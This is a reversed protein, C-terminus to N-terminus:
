ARQAIADTGGSCGSRVVVVVVNVIINHVHCNSNSNCCCCTCVYFSCGDFNCCRCCSCSCYGCSCRIEAGGQGAVCGCFPGAQDAINRNRAASKSAGSTSCSRARMHSL